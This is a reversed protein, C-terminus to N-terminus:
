KLHSDLVLKEANCIEMFTAGATPGFSGALVAILDNKQFCNQSLLSNIAIKVFDDKTKRPEMINGYVGYSLALERMVHSRYCKAFIPIHPRFAAVYRGTRGTTTDLVVAKIPLQISSRVVMKALTAAVEETVDILELDVFPQLQQEIEQAVNTMTRVAETAYPGYATEGSLMIADTRQFIANAVDSVEARTPRPHEIMSQLMQTAVIVPKKRAQCKAMLLRQIIPIKEAAIEVGLDGRAIMVGYAADLIEDINDVGEQNEIKAIIKLHSKREDLIKQVEILDNKSRVFSHAIFDLDNDIAWHIFQKDKESVAPLNINGDPVNVSKRGNIRGADLAKCVLHTETKEIVQLAIDGDDILLKAGVPVDHVFNLYNICLMEKSSLKEPCGAVIITDDIKVEFGVGNEMATTRMEPGKTDILIAIKDSVKRVNEVIKIATSTDQHATNLRVVNMGADYLSQLFDVDCHKDSITAVIKTKKLYM